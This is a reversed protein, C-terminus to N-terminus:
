EELIHYRGGVHESGAVQELSEILPANDKIKQHLSVDKDLHDM